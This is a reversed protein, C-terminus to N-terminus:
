VFIINKTRTICVRSVKKYQNEHKSMGFPKCSDFAYYNDFWFAELLSRKVEEALLLATDALRGDLYLIKAGDLIQTLAGDPLEQPSLPPDGPSNICTRTNRSICVM